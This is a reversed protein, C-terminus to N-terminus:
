KEGSGAGAGAAGGGGAGANGTAGTTDAGGATSGAAAGKPATGAGAKPATGAGGGATAPAPATEDELPENPSLLKGADNVAAPAKVKGQWKPSAVIAAVSQGTVNSIVDGPTANSFARMAKGANETASDAIYTGIVQIASGDASLMESVAGRPEPDLIAAHQGAASAINLLNQILQPQQAAPVQTWVKQRGLFDYAVREASPVPPVGKSYLDARFSMVGLM